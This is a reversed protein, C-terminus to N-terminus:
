YAVFDGGGDNAILTIIDSDKTYFPLEFNSQTKYKRSSSASGYDLTVYYEVGASLYIDLSHGYGLSSKSAYVEEGGVTYVKLNRVLNTSSQNVIRLHGSKSTFDGGSEVFTLIRKDSDSESLVLPLTIESDYSYYTVKDYSNKGVGMTVFYSHGKQPLLVEFYENMGVNNTGEYVTEGSVSDYVKIDYLIENSQAKNLIKLCGVPVRALELLSTNVDKVSTSYNDMYNKWVGVDKDRAWLSMDMKMNTVIPIVYGDNDKHVTSKWEWAMEFDATSKCISPMQSEYNDFDDGVAPLNQYIYDYDVTSSSSNNVVKMDSMSYAVTSSKEGGVGANFGLSGKKSKPSISGSIGVEWSITKSESFDKTDIDTGPIPKGETTFNLDSANESNVTVDMRTNYPGRFQCDGWYSYERPWYHAYANNGVPVEPNGGDSPKAYEYMTPAYNTAVAKITYYDGNGNVGEPVYCPYVSYSINASKFIRLYRGRMVVDQYSSYPVDYTMTNIKEDLGGAAVSSRSANANSERVGKIFQMLARASEFVSKNQYIQEGNEDIYYPPTLLITKQECFGLACNSGPLERPMIFNWGLTDRLVKLKELDPQGVIIIKGNDYAEKLIDLNADIVSNNLIIVEAAAPNETKLGAARASIWSEDSKGMGGLYVVPRNFQENDFSVVLGAENFYDSPVFVDENESCSLMLAIISVFLILTKKM